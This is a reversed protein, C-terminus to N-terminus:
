ENRETGQEQLEEGQCAGFCPQPFAPSARCKVLVASPSNWLGARAM